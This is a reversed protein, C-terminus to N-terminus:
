PNDKEMALIFESGIGLHLSPATSTLLASCQPGADPTMKVEKLGVVIGPHVTKPPGGPNLDEDEKLGMAAATDSIQRGGGRMETPMADHFAKREDPPGVLGVTRLSLQKRSQGMCDGRDFMLALESGGKGSSSELVKGYLMAGASLRCDPGLWEHVVKLTVPQGPKAHKSDLWGVIQAEITEDTPLDGAQDVFRDCAAREISNSGPVTSVALSAGGKVANPSSLEFRVLGDRYDMHITLVHLMDFGILGAIEFGASQDIASPDFEFIQAQNDFSVNAFQFDFHDRYHQLTGGSVTQEPNTFNMKTTSVLHAAESTMTSMRMGSDLAFLRRERHNLMVPVLLFQQRHYVPSYNAVEPAAYRDLPLSTEAQGPLAPLPALTLKAAPFDLSILYSAFVDTGIFGDGKNPFPTDSVGVLCDHFELPGLHLTDVHVINAPQDPPHEFGNEDALARSIYLGSAGTDVILRANKRPLQVELQYASVHKADEYGPILPLTVATTIPSSKCTRSNETLQGMLNDVTAVSLAKQDATLNMTSLAKDIGDVEQAASDVHLWARKIDPDAPDIDYAAQLEKRESAYMSDIRLIRSRLLHARAYCDDTKAAASLTQLALWPQGKRYQVEALATLTAAGSPDDALARNAQVMADDARGVHLLTRVLGASLAPDHPNQSLSQVYLSEAAEYKGEAYAKEAPSTEHQAVQTCHHDQARVSVAALVALLAGVNLGKLFLTRVTMSGGGISICKSKVAYSGCQRSMYERNAFRDAPTRRRIAPSTSFADEKSAFVGIDSAM